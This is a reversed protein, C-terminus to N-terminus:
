NRNKLLGRILNAEYSYIFMDCQCHIYLYYLTSIPCGYLHINKIDCPFTSIFFPTSPDGVLVELLRNGLTIQWVMLLYEFDFLNYFRHSCYFRCLAQVLYGFDALTVQPLFVKTKIIIVNNLFQINWCYCQRIFWTLVQVSNSSLPLM